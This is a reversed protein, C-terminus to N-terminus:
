LKYIQLGGSYIFSIPAYLNTSNIQPKQCCSSLIYLIIQGQFMCFFPKYVVSIEEVGGGFTILKLLNTVTIFFPVQSPGVSLFHRAWLQESTFHPWILDNKRLLNEKSGSHRGFAACLLLEMALYSKLIRCVRGWEQLKVTCLKM